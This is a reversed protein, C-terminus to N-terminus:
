RKVEVYTQTSSKGTVLAPLDYDLLDGIRDVIVDPAAYSALAKADHAYQGQRPFVTTVRDRWAAKIAALIRPKDDVLVYHDAPYRREVDELAMEKHIYILVHGDVAEALGSREVKRPQFVVDGDTLLVTRGWQRFQDLVDLSRPYLRDAFPYDVLFSSMSFLHMDGPHEIRYRQLAGLYDRYGLKAFLDEQIAWYRDRCASGYEHELHAKIDNQVGDNDLLTNDVDVLFIIPNMSSKSMNM